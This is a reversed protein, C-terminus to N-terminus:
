SCMMHLVIFFYIFLNSLTLFCFYKTLMYLWAKLIIFFYKYTHYDENRCMPMYTINIFIKKFLWEMIKKSESLVETPQQVKGPLIARESM